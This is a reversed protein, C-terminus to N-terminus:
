NIRKVPNFVWGVSSEDGLASRLERCHQKFERLTMQNQSNPFPDQLYVISTDDSDGKTIGKIVVAHGCFDDGLTADYLIVCPGYKYLFDFIVNAKLNPLSICTPVFISYSNATRSNTAL